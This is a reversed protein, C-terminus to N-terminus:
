KANRPQELVINVDPDRRAPTKTIRIPHPSLPRESVAPPAQGLLPSASPSRTSVHWRSGLATRAARGTVLGCAWREFRVPTRCPLFAGTQLSFAFKFDRFPSLMLVRRAQEPAEPAQLVSRWLSTRLGLLPLSGHPGASSSAQAGPNTTLRSITQNSPFSLHVGM